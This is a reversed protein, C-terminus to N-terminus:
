LEKNYIFNRENQAELWNPKNQTQKPNLQSQIPNTKVLHGIPLMKM